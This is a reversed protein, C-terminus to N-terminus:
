GRCSPCRPDREVAHRRVELTRADLVLVGGATAPRVGLLLHMIELGLLAGAVGAAAGLTSVPSRRTRLFAAYDDYASSERRLATEHCTFCPGGEIGYAPGVKVLPPVQGAVLFPTGEAVCAANVWRALEYPPEDAALVVADAGALLAAADAASALRQVVPTVRIAPDFARVWAASANAKATGVDERRYLLQRNLNSLEVADDDVLVLHGIGACACAALTWTGLGGCGVVTVTAARLRRQLAHEDGLEALYPLQRSFREADEGDLTAVGPPRVLAAGAAVLADLSAPDFGAGVLDARTAPGDALRQVLAVDAPVPARIVLDRSGAWVLCLDGHRDVFADISSRLRYTEGGSM